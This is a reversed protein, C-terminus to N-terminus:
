SKYNLVCNLLWFSHEKGKRYYLCSRSERDVCWDGGPAHPDLIKKMKCNMEMSLTPGSSGGERGSQTTEQEFGLSPLSRSSALFHGSAKHM